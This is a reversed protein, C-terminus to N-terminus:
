KVPNELNFHVSRLEDIANRIIEKAEQSYIKGEELLDELTSIDYKINDVKESRDDAEPDNVQEIIVDELNIVQDKTLNYLSAVESILEDVQEATFQKEFTVQKEFDDFTDDDMNLFKGIIQALKYTDYYRNPTVAETLCVSETVSEKKDEESKEEKEDDSYQNELPQEEGTEAEKEGAEYASKMEPIENLKSTLQGLHKMEENRIDTIMDQFADKLKSNTVKEGLSLIQDYESYAATEAAIAGLIAQKYAEDHSLDPNNANLPNIGAETLEKKKPIFRM